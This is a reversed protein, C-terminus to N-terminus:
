IANNFPIEEKSCKELIGTGEGSLRRKTKMKPFYKYLQRIYKNM